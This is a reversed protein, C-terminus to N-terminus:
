KSTLNFVGDWEAPPPTKINQECQKIYFDSVKDDPSLKLAAEFKAAAGAFDRAGFLAVGEGYVKLLENKEAPLTEKLGFLEYVKIPINKGVVRVRGLERAAVVDRAGAYCAESVMIKSGFFKNAGELRSALNVEDGIVTYSFRKESGMNGVVMFGSNLGIRAQPKIPMANFYEETLKQMAEQCKAAAICGKVRHGPDDLPANWFAMICDGIYKDVVGDNEMIVNTLATLLKNLMDTLEEPTLKESISTFKAIDLFFVTMDRKEGGLKLKGPDKVLVDVVAPSLYQGFTSKIWRKEQGEVVVRYITLFAFSIVLGSAPMVYDTKYGSVSLIVYALTWAFLLVATVAGSLYISSRFFLVPFWIFLLMAT